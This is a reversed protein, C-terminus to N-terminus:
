LDVQFFLHKIKELFFFYDVAPVNHATQLPIKKYVIDDIKIMFFGAHMGKEVPAVFSEKLEFETTITENGHLLLTQMQWDTNNYCLSVKTEKGDIVEIEPLIPVEELLVQNTFDELGYKMLLTTDKWKYSKNPPWGCALVVSILTRDERKVAGVFCYGAKGTFGTKVGIAGDMMYLFRNKNSVTFTKGTTLESFTHSSTNTIKLFDENQIAYTAIKALDAATTYHGDADLGNPTVFQTQLAGLEKAKANMLSAFGEVSGGIHEAIAVATDNHSELMLSYVLDKLYYQEGTNMNLQVDPQKAANQSVTVIDEMTGQELAIVLTMIKTTSAMALQLDPNKGYLVRGSTDEKPNIWWHAGSVGDHRTTLAETGTFLPAQTFRFHQLIVWCDDCNRGAPVQIAFLTVQANLGHEYQQESCQVQIADKCRLVDEDTLDAVVDEPVGLAILTERTAAQSSGDSVPSFDMPAKRLAIGSLLMAAATLGATLVILTRNSLHVSAATINYGIDTLGRSLRLLDSATILYMFILFYVLVGPVLLYVHALCALGILIGGHWKRQPLEYRQWTTRIAFYLCCVHVFALANALIEALSVADAVKGTLTSFFTADFCLKLGFLMGRLLTLAWCARFAGSERRLLRYGLLLLLYGIPPLVYNLGYLDLVLMSLPQGLLVWELAKRWPNTAHVVSVPPPANTLQQSLLEDFHDNM